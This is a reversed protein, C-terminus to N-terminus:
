SKEQTIPSVEPQLEPQAMAAMFSGEPEENGGPPYIVSNKPKSSGNTRAVAPVTNEQNQGVYHLLGDQRTSHLNMGDDTTGPGNHRNAFSQRQFYEGAISHRPSDLRETTRLQPSHNNKTQRSGRMKNGSELNELFISRQPSQPHRTFSGISLRNNSDRARPSGPREFTTSNPIKSWPVQKSRGSGEMGQAAEESAPDIAATGQHKRTKRLSLMSGFMCDNTTQSPYERDSGSADHAGEHNNYKQNIGDVRIPSATRSLKSQVPSEHVERGLTAVREPTYTVRSFPISHAPQEEVSVSFNEGGSEEATPSLVNLSQKTSLRVASRSQTPRPRLKQIHNGNAYSKVNSEPEISV